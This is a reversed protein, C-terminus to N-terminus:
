SWEAQTKLTRKGESPRMLIPKSEILFADHVPCLGRDLRSDIPDNVADDGGREGADPFKQPERSLSRHSVSRGALVSNLKGDIMAKDVAADSWRWFVPYANRHMQLLERGRAKSEGIRLALSEAGM